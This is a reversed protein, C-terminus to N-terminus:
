GWIWQLYVMGFVKCTEVQLVKSIRKELNAPKSLFFYLGVFGAFSQIYGVAIGQGVLPSLSAFKYPYCNDYKSDKNWCFCTKRIIWVFLLLTKIGINSGTKSRLINLCGWVAILLRKAIWIRNFFSHSSRPTIEDFLTALDGFKISQWSDENIWRMREPNEEM